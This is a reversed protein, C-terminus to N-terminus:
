DAVGPQRVVTDDALRVDRGVASRNPSGTGLRYAAQAIATKGADLTGAM